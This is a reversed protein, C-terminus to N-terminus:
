AAGIRAALRDLEGRLKELEAAMAVNNALSGDAGAAGAALLEDRQHDAAKALYISNFIMWFVFVAIPVYFALWGDWALPGNLFFVNFTGPVFMLASWLNFFGLWRPFIPTARKDILIAWGFVLAQMILTSSIGIFPIWAMDNLLQILEPARDVRFTATQWFFILYIFELVFLAGNGFQILSLAPFPGEIRRMQLSIAVTYPMLFSAVVMSVIMGFRIGNKHEIFLQATQAATDSPAPPPLFGALVAFGLGILVTFAIGSWACLKSITYNM